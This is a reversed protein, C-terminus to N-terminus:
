ATGRREAVEGSEARAAMAADARRSVPVILLSAALVVATIGAWGWFGQSIVLGSLLVPGAINQTTIHLDFAGLYEGQANEPALGFALGWASASQMVEAVSLCLVTLVIAAVVLALNGTFATLSVAACGAALWLGARRGTAAAGAVTEAGRSARVQFLIVFATNIVLLLPVLFPPVSTRNLAWLPLVVMLVTIHSALVSSVGVVGLFRLDRVATFYRPRSTSPAPAGEPLRTVLAAALGLLIASGIPILVLLRDSVAAVAAVGIGLSFGINFVSRMVANLRVREGDPILTAVLANETPGIGYDLLAILVVLLYFGIPGDVQSYLGFGVAVAAFLVFLLTRKRVRDAVMGFVVTSILGAFGAASLGLGVQTASLGVHLTFYVVSGSIFVGKGIAGALRIAILRRRLPDAPVLRALFGTTDTTTM